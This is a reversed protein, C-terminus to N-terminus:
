FTMLTGVKFVSTLIGFANEGIRCAKVAALQLNKEEIMLIVDLIYLKYVM